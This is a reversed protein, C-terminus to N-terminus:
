RIVVGARRATIAWLFRVGPSLKLLERAPLETLREYVPSEKFPQSGEAMARMEDHDQEPEIAM